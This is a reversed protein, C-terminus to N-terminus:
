VSKIIYLIFDGVGSITAEHLKSQLKTPPVPGPPIALLIPALLSPVIIAPQDTLSLTPIRTTPLLAILVPPISIGFIISSVRM